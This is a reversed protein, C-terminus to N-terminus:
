QKITEVTKGCNLMMNGYYPNKIGNEKSLWDAGKGDNYMPCHQLYVAETPKVGKILDIMNKSLNAFAERQVAIDKKTSITIADKKLDAEVKMYAMHDEMKMKNMQVANIATLIAAAKSAATIADSKVLADKLGFYNDYVAQLQNAEQLPMNMKATDMKMNHESHNINMEMAQDKVPIIVAVKNVRDYKCCGPLVNYAGDPALFNDSDYGALAIKKLVADTSTKKSNYSITAMDTKEDWVTKSIGKETGAKEIKSKCMDCNGYVKITESKANKIQSQCPTISFLGVSVMLIISKM